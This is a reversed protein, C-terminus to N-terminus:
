KRCVIITTSDWEKKITVEHFGAKNLLNLQTQIAFPTDYHYVGDEIGAEKRIQENEAIYFREEEVSKVTYDGEIYVGDQQLSAYISRYLSLKLEASFHHLSYTSLAFDFLESGFNVDFYSKCILHLQKEKDKFKNRLIELMNESLDIGTVEADPYLSFLRELELGTGCGLDLVKVQKRGAPFCSGIEDYFMNLDMDKLMHDDYTEARKNFFASMEEMRGAESV